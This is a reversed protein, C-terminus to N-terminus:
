REVAIIDGDKLEPDPQDGRIVRNYDLRYRLEGQSTKRILLISSENAFPAFGGGTSIAQIFTIKKDSRFEGPKLFAGSLYYRVPSTAAVSISVSAGPIFSNLKESLEHQLDKLSKGEAPVDNVLPLTFSGDERVTFDGSLRPEGWVQVSLTDGRGILYEKPKTHDVVLESLPRVNGGSCAHLLFVSTLLLSLLSIRNASSSIIKQESM